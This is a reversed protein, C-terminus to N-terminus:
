IALCVTLTLVTVTMVADCEPQMEMRLSQRTDTNYLCTVTCEKKVRVCM